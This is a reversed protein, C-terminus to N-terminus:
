TETEDATRPLTLTIDARTGEGPSSELAFTGRLREVRERIGELGFHGESLGPCNATDFGIGDDRVSFSITGDHCEGAIRVHRAKGHRVANAALERVICLISHSTSDLLRSRPVNFRVALAADGMVPLVTKTVASTMDKDDLATGRLDSLCRKLETRSSFLMREVTDLQRSIADTGVANKAAVVQCALGALNQSLSDHLEVALRTREDVKLDASVRAIQEKLLEHSRRDIIRNLIRNWIVFAVLVLILSGIAIRLREPTWWPPRAIVRLDDRSRTIISFGSIKPFAAYPHWDDVDILCVGSVEVKSGIPIEGATEPLASVDATIEVSGCDLLIQGPAVAHPKPAAVLGRMRICRGHYTVDVGGLKSNLIQEPTIDEPTEAPASPPGDLRYVAHALNIHFLDTQPSGGVTVLSGCPPLKGENALTVRHVRNNQSRILLNKGQWGALVKGNIRRKTLNSLYNPTAHYPDELEKFERLDATPAKEVTIAKLSSLSITHGLFRRFGSSLPMLVGTVTVEAGIFGALADSDTREEGVYCTAYISETGCRVLFYAFKPDIDDWFADAILGSLRITRYNYTGSNLDKSDTITFIPPDCHGLVRADKFAYYKWEGTSAIQAYGRINAIDGVKVDPPDTEKTFAVGCTGDHLVLTGTKIVTGIVSFRPKQRMEAESLSVLRSINTIVDGASGLFPVLLLLFVAIRRPM